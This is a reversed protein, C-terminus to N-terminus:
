RDAHSAELGPRLLYRGRALRRVRRSSALARNV